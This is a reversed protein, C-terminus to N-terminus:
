WSRIRGTDLHVFGSRPYYGVGGQQLALGVDRITRIDVDSMRIDVAKGEIHMSHEAVGHRMKRLWDNTEQSRYGSLIKFTGTSGTFVSVAYLLDLLAPDMDRIEESHHDRLFENFRQLTQRDYNQQPCCTITLEEDTHVNHLSITRERSFAQALVDAKPMLLTGVAALGARTLFARRTLCPAAAAHELRPHLRHHSSM